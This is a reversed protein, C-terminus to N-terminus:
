ALAGSLVLKCTEGFAPSEWPVKVHEHQGDAYFLTTAREMMPITLDELGTFSAKIHGLAVTRRELVEEESEPVYPAEGICGGAYWANFDEEFREATTEGSAPRKAFRGSDVSRSIWGSLFRPMGKSTKRRGPHDRVWQKAKRAESVIDVGDFTEELERIRLKTLGWTKPKGRTPFELLVKDELLTADEASEKGAFPGAEFVKGELEAERGQGEPEEVGPENKEKVRPRSKVEPEQIRKECEAPESLAQVESCSSPEPEPEPEPEPIPEPIPEPLPVPIPEPLPVPLGGSDATTPCHGGNDATTRRQGGSDASVFDMGARQLRKKIRDECHDKWDHIILRHEESEELWGTEVLAEIVPDFDGEFDIGFAIDENSFRGVDGRPCNDGVFDWVSQLLGKAEWSRLGLRRQLKKFKLLHPTEHKM